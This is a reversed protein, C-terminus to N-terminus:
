SPGTILASWNRDRSEVYKIDHVYLDAHGEEIHRAFDPDGAAAAGRMFTVLASLRPAVMELASRRQESTCGYSDLFLRARRAHDADDGFGDRNAPDTLPAFRYLAYALDWSRPGPRANDFDILGVAEGNSFVCNYPAFDGHCVVEVPEVPPQQWPLRESILPVSAEHVRRLLRAATVLARDGRVHSSLPYNGVEGPLFDFIDRGREDIGHWAPVGDVGSARLHRVLARTAPSWARAPRRVTSGVRVVRNVGGGDLEIEHQNDMAIREQDDCVRPSGGNLLRAIIHNLALQLDEALGYDNTRLRVAVDVYKLLTANARGVAAAVKLGSAQAEQAARLLNPSEGSVSFLLLLDDPAGLLRLQRSFVEDFGIDNALATVVSPNDSLGVVKGQQLGVTLCAGMLDCVVHGATSASGGNGAVFVTKGEIIANAVARAVDGVARVDLSAALRAIQSLYDEAVEASSTVTIASANAHGSGSSKLLM